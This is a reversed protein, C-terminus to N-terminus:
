AGMPSTIRGTVSPSQRTGGRQGVALAIVLSLMLWNFKSYYTVGALDFVVLAIILTLAWFVETKALADRSRRWRKALCVVASLHVMLYLLLGVVGGDVLLEIYNDHAYTGWGSVDRYRDIGWGTFPRELWLELGENVMSQRILMSNDEVAQGGFYAMVPTFRESQPSLAIALGLSVFLISVGALAWMRRRAPQSFVWYFALLGVAGLTVATGTRSGALFLIGYLSIALYVVCLVLAKINFTRGQLGFLIRRMILIVGCMLVYAYENQNGVTSGIRGDRAHAGFLLLYVMSLIIGVYVALEVVLLGRKIIYNVIITSFILLQIVTLLATTGGPAWVMQIICYCCFLAFMILPVPFSFQQRHVLVEVVFVSALTLGLVTAILSYGPWASFLIVAVIYLFVFVATAPMQSQHRESARGVTEVAFRPAVNNQV